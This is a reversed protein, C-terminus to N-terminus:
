AAVDESIHTIHESKNLSTGMESDSVENLAYEPFTKLFWKKTLPYKGGKAEAIRQVDVFAKLNAESNTQTKIYDEMRKFTLGNYSKKEVTKFVITFGHNQQIADRLLEYEATGYTSAKKYFAKSITITQNILDITIPNIKKM